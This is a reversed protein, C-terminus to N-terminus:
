CCTKTLATNHGSGMWNLCLKIDWRSTL